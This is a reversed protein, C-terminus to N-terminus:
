SLVHQRVTGGRAYTFLGVEWPMTAGARELCEVSTVVAHDPDFVRVMQEMIARYAHEAHGGADEVDLVVANRVHQNGLTASISAEAGNWASFQFGLDPIPQRDADRRNSNLKRAISPADLGIPSRLAAARSKGKSYWTTFDDGLGALARLFASVREAASEKSEQRQSWYAGIYM